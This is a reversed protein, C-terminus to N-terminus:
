AEKAAKKPQHYEPLTAERERAHEDCLHLWAKKGKIGLVGTPVINEPNAWQHCGDIPCYLLKEQALSFTRLQPVPTEQRNRRFM